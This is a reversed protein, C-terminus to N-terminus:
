IRQAVATGMADTGLVKDRPTKDDAIDGTRLDDDLVSVVAARVADAAPRKRHFQITRVAKQFRKVLM